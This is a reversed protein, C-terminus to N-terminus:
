TWMTSIGHPATDLAPPITQAQMVPSPSPMIAHPKPATRMRIAHNCSAKAQPQQSQEAAKLPPPAPPKARGSEPRYHLCCSNAPQQSPRMTRFTQLRRKDSARLPKIEAGRPCDNPRIIDSHINCATNAAMYAPPMPPKRPKPETQRHLRKRISSDTSKNAHKCVYAARPNRRM